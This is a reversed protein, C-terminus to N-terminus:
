LLVGKSFTILKHERDVILSNGEGILLQLAHTVPMTRHMKAATPIPKILIGQASKPAPYDTVIHYELPELLWTAAEGVTRVEPPYLTRASVQLTDVDPLPMAFAHPAIAGGLILLTRTLKM